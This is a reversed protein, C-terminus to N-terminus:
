RWRPWRSSASRRTPWRTTGEGRRDPGLRDDPRHGRRPELRHADARLDRRREQRRLLRGRDGADHRLRRRLLPLRGRRPHLLAGANSAHPLLLLCVGQLGLMAAFAPMRGIYDSAAAWIIRGGGNFIALVGVVTAAAATVTYGAIDQASAAAQSILAIGATVNLTLIATLLYWQPTRLAEGQTYDKARWGRRRRRRRSTAPCPLGAPPNRFFSAGILSM